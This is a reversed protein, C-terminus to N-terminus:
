FDIHLAAARHVMPQRKDQFNTSSAHKSYWRKSQKVIKTHL